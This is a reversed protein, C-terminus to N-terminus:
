APTWREDERMQCHLLHEPRARANRVRVHCIGGPHYSEPIQPERILAPPSAGQPPVSHPRSSISSTDNLELKQCTLFRTYEIIFSARDKDFSAWMFGAVPKPWLSLFFSGQFSYIVLACRCCGLPAFPSLPVPRCLTTLGYGLPIWIHSASLAETWAILCPIHPTSKM